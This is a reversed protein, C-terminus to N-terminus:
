SVIKQTSGCHRGDGAVAGTKGSLQYRNLVTQKGSITVTDEGRLEVFAEGTPLVPISAPRGHALWYRVLMMEVTVPVYGSAVFFNPPVTATSNNGRDQVSATKGQILVSTNEEIELPAPGKIEFNLPTFDTSTRLTANVSVKKEQEIFPLETKAQILLEGDPTRSISYSEEGRIQKTEYFRFRGSEIIQPTGTGLLTLLLLCLLPVAFRTM